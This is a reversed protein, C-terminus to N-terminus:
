AVNKSEKKVSIFKIKRRLNNIDNKYFLLSGGGVICCCIIGSIIANFIWVLYNNPESLPLCNIILISIIAEVVSVLIRLLTIWQKREVIHKCLYYSYQMTRFVTAVLTGIAIGVLGFNIVLIISLSLNIVAEFIAGNRTQKYHGAAQVVLQYPIRICNFFQSILLIYAFLPRMYDVDTIGSTYIKVFSLILVISCTYVVTSISYMIWEILSLSEKLIKHEKKAIMNGFVAELGNSLSFIIKKLGNVVLVYVSYVSVELMNSFVTLVMIDTNTMVFNAAQHWFADWRQSIARNDPKVNTDIRYKKKVYIRLIIPYLILAITSGLKVMHISTGLCVLVATVGTNLIYCIAKILSPIWLKQDAQLLILYTNGFFSDVFTNIGIIIFLSFTFLWDFEDSVFAPYIAAFFIIGVGLILGIKKMFLDTAKMISNIELRNNEALPKYLAARTVGGIGFRLLAACSLFQTISTMLGNYKSGFATLILRPLIFACIIAVLEEMLGMVTNIVAKKSRM